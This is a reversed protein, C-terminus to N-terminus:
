ARALTELRERQAAWGVPRPVMFAALGVGKPLRGDLIMEIIDPALLTLQLLKALYRDSIKEAGALERISDYKGSDLLWLAYRCPIEDIFSLWSGAYRHIQRWLRQVFAM